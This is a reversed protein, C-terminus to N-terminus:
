IPIAIKGHTHGAELYGIADATQDLRYTRDVVPTVDGDEILRRLLNLHRNPKDNVPALRQSVFPSVALVKMHQLAPGLWAGGGAGTAGLTGKPTLARRFEAITHIM